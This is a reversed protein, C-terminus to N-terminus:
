PADGMADVLADVHQPSGGPDRAYTARYIPISRALQSALQFRRARWDPPVSDFDFTQELLTTLAESGQLRRWKFEPTKSPATGRLHIIGRLPAGSSALHDADLRFWRKAIEPHISGDEVAEPISGPGRELRLAPAGCAVRLDDVSVVAMEDSLARAGHRRICEYVTSSKGAGTSAILLWAEQNWVIGGAHLGLTSVGAAMAYIPLALRELVHFLPLPGRRGNAAYRIREDPPLRIDFWWGGYALLGGSSTWTGIERSVRSADLHPAHELRVRHGARDQDIGLHEFPLSCDSVVTLGFLGYAQEETRDTVEIMM